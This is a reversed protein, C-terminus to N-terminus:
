KEPKPAQSDTLRAINFVYDHQLLEKFDVNFVSNQDFVVTCDEPSIKNCDAVDNVAETIDINNDAMYRELNGSFEILYKNDCNMNVIVKNPTFAFINSSETLPAIRSFRLQNNIQFDSTIGYSELLCNATKKM